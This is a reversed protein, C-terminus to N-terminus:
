KALYVKRLPETVNWITHMGERLHCISGPVLTFEEAEFGNVPEVKVTAKGSLVIFLEEAEIDGMSGQSMEWLGFEVGFIEGLCAVGTSPTGAVLQSADVPEHVLAAELANISRTDEHGDFVSANSSM